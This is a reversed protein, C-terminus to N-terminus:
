SVDLNGVNDRFLTFSLKNGQLPLKSLEFMELITVSKLPLYVIRKSYDM